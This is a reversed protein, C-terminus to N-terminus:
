EIWHKKCLIEWYGDRWPGRFARRGCILPMVARESTVKHVTDALDAWLFAASTHARAVAADALNQGGSYPSAFFRLLRKHSRTAGRLTWVCRHWEPAGDLGGWAQMGFFGRLRIAFPLRRLVEVVVALAGGDHTTHINMANDGYGCFAHSGSAM